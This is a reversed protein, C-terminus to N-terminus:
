QFQDTLTTLLTLTKYDKDRENIGFVIIKPLFERCRNVVIFFGDTLWMVTAKHM